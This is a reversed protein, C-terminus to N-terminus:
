PTSPLSNSDLCMEFSFDDQQWIPFHNPCNSGTLYGNSGWEVEQAEVSQMEEQKPMRSANIQCSSYKHISIPCEPLTWTRSLKLFQAITTAEFLSGKEARGCRFASELNYSVHEFHIPYTMRHDHMMDNTIWGTVTVNETWVQEEKSKISQM